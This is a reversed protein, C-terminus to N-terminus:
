LPKVARIAIFHGTIFRTPVSRLREFGLLARSVFTPLVGRTLRALIGLVPVALIRPAHMIATCDEVDFGAEEVLRHIRTPGQTKGIPYPVLGVSHTLKYPLANRVAIVPNTLNDLTLVLTGGPVLIRLLEALAEELGGLTEFHDLTSLSVIADISEDEIPLSRVDAAMCVIGRHRRAAAALVRTSVDLGIVVDARSELLKHLGQTVAEDFLDTKLLRKSRGPPLWASILRGNVADSHGRWLQQRRGELWGSAYENWSGARQKGRRAPKM